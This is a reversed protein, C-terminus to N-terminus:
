EHSAGRPEPRLVTATALTILAALTMSATVDSLFHMNANVRAAAIFFPATLLLWRWRPFLYVLPLFLGFYFAAHGSPFSGGSAFWIRDWNGSDLLEHPRVRNFLDKGMGCILMSLVQTAGVFLLAAGHRRMRIPIWLAGGIVTLVLGPLMIHIHIGTLTDLLAMGASFLGANEWGSARIFEALPRDLYPIAALTLLATAATFFWLGKKSM